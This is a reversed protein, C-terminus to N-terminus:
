DGGSAVVAAVGDPLFFPSMAFGISGIIFTWAAGKDLQKQTTEDNIDISVLWCISGAIFLVSSLILIIFKAHSTSKMKM